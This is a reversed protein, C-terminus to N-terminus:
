GALVRDLLVLCAANHAFHAVVGPVLSETRARLWGLLLGVVFRHPVSFFWGELMHMGAFLAATVVITSREGVARRVAIWLVGRCIWEETLAPLLATRLLAVPWPSAAEPEPTVDLLAALLEVYAWSAAFGLAACGLGVAIGRVSPRGALSSRLGRPGLCLAGAAGVALLGVHYVWAELWAAHAIESVRASLVLVALVGAFLVFAARVASRDHTAEARRWAALRRREPPLAAGCGLCFRARGPLATGCSTCFGGRRRGAAM